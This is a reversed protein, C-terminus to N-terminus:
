LGVLGRAEALLAEVREPSAGEAYIRVLPETGSLRVTVWSGDELVFRRGDKTDSSAVRAGAIADPIVTGMRGAVGERQEPSLLIDSRDYYHPGVMAYLYDLLESPRRGTRVM